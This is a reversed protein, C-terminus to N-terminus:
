GQAFSRILSKVARVYALSSPHHRVREAGGTGLNYAAIALDVNGKAWTLCYDFYYSALRASASVDKTLAYVIDRDSLEQVSSKTPHNQTVLQPFMKYVARATGLKMQMPGFCWAKSFRGKPLPVMAARSEHYAIAQIVTGHGLEDGVAKITDLMESQPAPQVYVAPTHTHHNPAATANCVSLALLTPIAFVVRSLLSRRNM